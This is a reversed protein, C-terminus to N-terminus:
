RSQRQRVEWHFNVRWLRRAVEGTQPSRCRARYAFHSPTPSLHPMEIHARTCTVDAVFSHSHIPASPLHDVSHLPQLGRHLRRRQDSDIPSLAGPSRNAPWASPETEPAQTFIPRTPIAREGAPKLPITHHSTM